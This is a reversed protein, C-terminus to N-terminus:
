QLESTQQSTLFVRGLSEALLKEHSELRGHIHRELESLTGKISQHAFYQSLAERVVESYSSKRQEAERVVQDMQPHTLRVTCVTTRM